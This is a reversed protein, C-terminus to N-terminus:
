VKLTCNGVKLLETPTEDASLDCLCSTWKNLNLHIHFHIKWGDSQSQDTKSDQSASDKDTLYMVLITELLSLMMLTFIGICFVVILPIRESSSPLIENLVLQMVTVALLMTVKFSLKEGGSDSILFSALDLSFFLLIPLLFNIIGLASRRKMSIIFIVQDQTFDFSTAPEAHVTMSILLWEFKTRMAMSYWSFGSNAQNNTILKIQKGSYVVSKFTLTCTQIDFPFKFVQMRCMTVLVQDNKVFVRGDSLITLHPSPTAKDKEIIEEITIDPKWLVESPISVEDIGCFDEPEWQIHENKWMM